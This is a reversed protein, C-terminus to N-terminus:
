QQQAQAARARALAAGFTWPLECAIIQLDAGNKLSRRVFGPYNRARGGLGCTAMYQGILCKGQCNDWDYTGEAPQTELWAIFSPLTHVDTKVEWKPDYLM